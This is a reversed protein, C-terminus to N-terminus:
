WTCCEAFDDRLSRMVATMMRGTAQSNLPFIDTGYVNTHFYDYIIKRTLPTNLMFVFYSQIDIYMYPMDKMFGLVFISVSLPVFATRM